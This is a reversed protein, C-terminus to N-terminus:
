EPLYALQEIDEQRDAKFSHLANLTPEIVPKFSRDGLRFGREELDVLQQEVNEVLNIVHDIRGSIPIDCLLEWQRKIETLYHRFAQPEGWPVNAPNTSELLPRCYDCLPGFRGALGRQYALGLAQLRFESLTNADYYWIARQRDNNEQVDFTTPDFSRVNRFNGSAIANVGACAYILCQQNSYGVLVKKGSLRLSLLGDLINYLFVEDNVLFDRPSKAIFYVGDVPYTVVENLVRDFMERNGIIDPGISVTSYVPRDLNLSNATEAFVYHTNLWDESVANTYRGPLIIETVNLQEVQYRIVGRCLESAGASAFEVTDFNIGEWYPYNLINERETRPQYFQPDFLVVANREHLEVAHREIQERTCNRPSLIVGTNPNREVFEINLALMGHGQQLYFRTM